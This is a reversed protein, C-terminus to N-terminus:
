IQCDFSVGLLVQKKIIGGLSQFDPCDATLSNLLNKQVCSDLVFFGLSIFLHFGGPDLDTTRELNQKFLSCLM